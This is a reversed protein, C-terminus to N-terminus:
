RRFESIGSWLLGDCPLTGHVCARIRNAILNKELDKLNDVTAITRELM